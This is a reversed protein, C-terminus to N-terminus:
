CHDFQGPKAYVDLPSRAIVKEEQMHAYVLTTKIHKHGLFKQLQFLGGGSELFHTAFSHRLSHMSCEKRICANKRALVFAHECARISIPKGRTYGEFMWEAPRYKRFYSRLYALCTQSLITYRGKNGKGQEIRLRMSESIIHEPKIRVLEGVRLGSSYALMLMATHKVNASSEIINMVESVTLVRPLPAHKRTRPIGDIEWPIGVTQVFLYKISSYL